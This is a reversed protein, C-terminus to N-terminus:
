NSAGRGALLGDILMLAVGVCIASDAINFAPWSQSGLHFDLFDVVAGLRLRDVVNGIAGGVVLGVAVGLFLSRARWLWVLLAGIIAAALLSFALSNITAGNNFLGFSVGTNPVRVINFFGTVRFGDGAAPLHSVIWAKSLQDLALVVVAAILGLGLVAGRSRGPGAMAPRGADGNSLDVM